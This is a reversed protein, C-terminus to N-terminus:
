NRQVTRAHLCHSIVISRSQEQRKSGVIVLIIYGCHNIVACSPQLSTMANRNYWVIYHMNNLWAIALWLAQPNYVNPTSAHRDCCLMNICNHQWRWLLGCGKRIVGVHHLRRIKCDGNNGTVTDLRLICECIRPITNINYLPCRVVALRQLLTLCCANTLVVTTISLCHSIM